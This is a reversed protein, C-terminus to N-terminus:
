QQSVNLITDMLISPNKEAFSQLDKAMLRYHPVHHSEKQQKIHFQGAQLEM